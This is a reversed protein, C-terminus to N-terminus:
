DVYEIQVHHYRISVNKKRQNCISPKSEIGVESLNLLFVPLTLYIGLADTLVRPFGLRKIHIKMGTDMGPVPM